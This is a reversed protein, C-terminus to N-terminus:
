PGGPMSWPGAPRAARLVAAAKDDGEDVADDALRCFAYLALAPDRVRAPLLRSAAHFSLSEPASRRAAPRWIPPAIATMRRGDRLRPRRACPADPVLQGLVEATGIM